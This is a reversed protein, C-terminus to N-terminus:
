AVDERASGFHRNLSSLCDAIANHRARVIDLQAQLESIKDALEIEASKLKEVGAVRQTTSARHNELPKELSLLLGRMWQTAERAAIEFLHVVRGGVAEMFLEGLRAGRLLLMNSPRKFQHEAQTEIKQMEIHFRQTPFPTIEGGAIRYEVKMKRFVQAFMRKIEDIKKEALSIRERSENLYADLTAQIGGPLVSGALSAAIQDAHARARTVDVIVSLEEGLRAHIARLGRLERAAAQLNHQKTSTTEALNGVIRQNKERLDGLERLQGLLTYRWEDLAGQAAALCDSLVRQAESSLSVQRASSLERTIGRELQYLRSRVLTDRDGSTKGMFGMRASLPIVRIPDVKLLDAANTVQNDIERLVDSNARGEEYLADIKNLIVLRNTPTTEPARGFGAGFKSLSGGLYDKWLALDAKSIGEKADLVFAVCDAEPVRHQSLEPEAALASAGPTDLVVLGAQLLPHPMNIISHRWRPVDVLGGGGSPLRAIAEGHLGWAVAEGLTVRRIESLSGLARQISESDEYVFPITKWLTADALLESFRSPSERTEIPLLRVGVPLDRDFRLETVCLTTRGPGSPILRKGREAFFLANILESKGREAEAVFAITLREDRVRAQLTDLQQKAEADILEHLMLAHRMTEIQSDLGERWSLFDALRSTLFPENM